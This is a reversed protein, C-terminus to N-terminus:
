APGGNGVARRPLKEILDPLMRNVELVNILEVGLLGGFPIEAQKSFCIKSRRACRSPTRRPKTPGRPRWATFNTGGNASNIHLDLGSGSAMVMDAPVEVLEM